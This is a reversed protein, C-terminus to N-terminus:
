SRDKRFPLLSAVAACVCPRRRRVRAIRPLRPATAAYDIPYTAPEYASARELAAVTDWTGEASPALIDQWIEYHM